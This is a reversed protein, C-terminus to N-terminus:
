AGKDVLPLFEEARDIKAQMLQQELEKVRAYLKEIVNDRTMLELELHMKLEALQRIIVNPDAGLLPDQEAGNLHPMSM